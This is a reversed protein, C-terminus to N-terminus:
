AVSPDQSQKRGTAILVIEQAVEDDILDPNPSAAMQYFAKAVQEAQCRGVQGRPDRSGFM